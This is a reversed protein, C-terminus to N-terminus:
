NYCRNKKVSFQYRIYFNIQFQNPLNPKLKTMILKPIYQIKFLHSFMTHLQTYVLVHTSGGFSLIKADVFIDWPLRRMRQVSSLCYYDNSRSKTAEPTNYTRQRNVQPKSPNDLTNPHSYTFVYYRSELHPGLIM